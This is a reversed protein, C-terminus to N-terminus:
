NGGMPVLRVAEVMTTLQRALGSWATKGFEELFADQAAQWHPRAEAARREGRATLAVLKTRGPGPSFAILRERKLPELARYLSTREFLQEAALETLPMPEGRRGLSVLLSYQTTTLGAKALHADYLRSVSRTARRLTGAACTAAASETPM